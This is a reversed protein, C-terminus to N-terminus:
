NLQNMLKKNKIVTYLILLGVNPDLLYPTWLSKNRSTCCAKAGDSGGEGVRQRRGEKREERLWEYCPQWVISM